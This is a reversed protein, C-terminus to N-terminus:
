DSTYYDLWNNWPDHGVYGSVKMFIQQGETIKYVFFASGAILFFDPLWSTLRLM